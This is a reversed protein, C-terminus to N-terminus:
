YRIVPDDPMQHTLDRDTRPAMGIIRPEEGRARRAADRAAGRRAAQDFLPTPTNATANARFDAGGGNGVREGNVNVGSADMGGTFGSGAFSAGPVVVAGPINGAVNTDTGGTVGGGVETGIGGFTPGTVGQSSIAGATGASTQGESRGLAAGPPTANLTNPTVRNNLLFQNTEATNRNVGFGAGDTPANASSSGTNTSGTPTTTTGSSSTSGSPRDAGVNQAPITETPPSTSAGSGTGTGSSTTNTTNATCTSGGTGVCGGARATTTTGTTGSATTGTGSSNTTTRVQAVGATSALALGVAAALIAPSLKRM